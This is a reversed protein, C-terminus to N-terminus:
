RQTMALLAVVCLAVIIPPWTNPLIEHWLIPLAGEGRARAAQVFDEELLGLAVGDGATIAVFRGADITALGVSSYRPPAGATVSCSIMSHHRLRSARKLHGRVTINPASAFVEVPFIWFFTRRSRAFAAQGM